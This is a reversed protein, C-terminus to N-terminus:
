CWKKRVEVEEVESGEDTPEPNRGWIEIGDPDLEPQARVEM